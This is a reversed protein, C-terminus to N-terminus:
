RLPDGATGLAFIAQPGRMNAQHPTDDTLQRGIASRRSLDFKGLIAHVHNKVTAPSISLERAIQKNSLGEAVMQAVEGERETLREHRRPETARAIAAFRDLLQATLAPPCISLGKVAISVAETIADVSGDEGVFARVGARACALADEVGDVGFAVIKIDPRIALLECAQSSARRRTTDLVVVDVEEQTVLALATEVGVAGLVHFRGTRVLASEIGERLLAVDGVVLLTPLDPTRLSQQGLSM